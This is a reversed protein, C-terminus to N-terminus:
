IKGDIYLLDVYINDFGLMYEGKNATTGINVRISYM